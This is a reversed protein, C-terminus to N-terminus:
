AAVGATRQATLQRVLARIEDQSKGAVTAALLAAVENDPWGAARPGIKVPPTFLGHKIDAYHGSRSKGRTALVAPVRVIKIM